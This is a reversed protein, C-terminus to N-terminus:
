QLSNAIEVAQAETLQGTIFYSRDATSWALALEGVKDGNQLLVGSGSNLRVDHIDMEFRTGIPFFAAPNAKFKERIISADKANIGMIRLIVEMFRDVPFGAPVTMTLPPAQTLLFNGYDTLIGPAQQIKLVVGDWEKPISIDTGNSKELATTLEAVNITAEGNLSDMIGFEPKVTSKPLRPTMGIRSTAEDQSAVPEAGPSPDAFISRLSSPLSEIGARDVRVVEFRKLAVTQTSQLALLILLLFMSPTHGCFPVFSVINQLQLRPRHGRAKGSILSIRATM